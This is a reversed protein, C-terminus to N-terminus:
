EGAQLTIAVIEPRNNVRFPFLSNGLGRSVAMVTDLHLLHPPYHPCPELKEMPYCAAGGLLAPLGARVLADYALQAGRTPSGCSVAAELLAFPQKM